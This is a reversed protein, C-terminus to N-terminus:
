IQQSKDSCDRIAKLACGFLEKCEGTRNKKGREWGTECKGRDRETKRRGTRGRCEQATGARSITSPAAAAVSHEGDPGPLEQLEQLRWIRVPPQLLAVM